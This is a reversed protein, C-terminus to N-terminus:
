QMFNFIWLIIMGLLKFRKRYRYICFRFHKDRFHDNDNFISSYFSQLLPIVEEIKSRKKSDFAEDITGLIDRHEDFEDLVKKTDVIRTKASSIFLGSKRLIEVIEALAVRAEIESNTFIRIDDVYRLYKYGRRSVWKDFEDMYINGLFSSPNMVQPISIHERASWFKFMNGLLQKVPRLETKSLNQFIDDLRRLLRYHNIHEFYGTLDTELLFNSERCNSEVNDQFKKWQKVGPQFMYNSTPYTYIYSYVFEEPTYHPALFDTIAQYILRDRINMAGTPRLLFGNKPVSLSKFEQPHYNQPNEIEHLLNNLVADLNL